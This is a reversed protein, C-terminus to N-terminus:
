FTELTKFTATLQARVTGDSTISLVLLKIYITHLYSYNKRISDLSKFNEIMRTPNWTTLRIVKSAVNNM